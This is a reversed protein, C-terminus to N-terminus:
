AAAALQHCRLPTPAQQRREKLIPKLGADRERQKVYHGHNTKRARSRRPDRSLSYEFSSFAHTRMSFVQVM